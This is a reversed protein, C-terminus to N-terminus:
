IHNYGIAQPLCHQLSFCPLIFPSSYGKVLCSPYVFSMYSYYLYTFSILLPTNQLFLLSICLLRIRWLGLLFWGTPTWKPTSILYFCVIPALVPIEITFDLLVLLHKSSTFCFSCCCVHNASSIRHNDSLKWEEHQITRISSRIVIHHVMTWCLDDSSKSPSPSIILYPKVQLAGIYQHRVWLPSRFVTSAAVM